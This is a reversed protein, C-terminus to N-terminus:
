EGFFRRYYYDYWEDPDGESPMSGDDEPISAIAAQPKEDLTIELEMAAGGRIVTVTTTDGAKFNRLARTLSTIGKVKYGGLDTIIDKPQIGARDAAGGDEVSIVYAGTPLGFMSASSEDTDSVSIGMYAGTVYGYDILDSIMGKVDDIPIAFGIGEITAGSGSNGSYKATTVGIVEGYMNFLPGGSNGSNIAADTQIMSMISGDTTVDRDKGSVYGVTQTSTLEGLPNGIAVVMDGIILDDSSGLTVAPLGAADVKLVAIDNTDVTGVITAPYETGDHTIVSVSTAGQVVHYNTIVYGDETFIFGSGTATGETVGYFSNAQITSSIAVVSDVNAAYVQSPTLLDGTVATSGPIPVTNVKGNNIQQQLDAIASHFENSMNEARAEWRNNVLLATIGCSGAVVVLALVAALIKKGLGKHQKKVKPAKPAEYQPPYQYAAQPEPQQWRSEQRPQHNMVYPSKAYPSEKRGAGAGHYSSAQGGYPQQPPVEQQVPTEQRPPESVPPQEQEPVFENNEYDNM